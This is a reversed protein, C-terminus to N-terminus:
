SNEWELKVDDVLKDSHELSLDTLLLKVAMVTQEINEYEDYENELLTYIVPKILAEWTYRSAIGDEIDFTIYNKNDIDYTYQTYGGADEWLPLINGLNYASQEEHNLYYLTPCGLYIDLPSNLTGNIVDIFFKPFALDRILEKAKERTLYNM